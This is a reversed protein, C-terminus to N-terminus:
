AAQQEAFAAIAGDAVAAVFDPLWVRANNEGAVVRWFAAIFSEGSGDNLREGSHHPKVVHVFLECARYGSVGDTEEFHEAFTRGGLSEWLTVLRGLEQPYAYSTAWHKGCAYGEDYTRERATRYRHM